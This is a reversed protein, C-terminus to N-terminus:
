NIVDGIVNIEVALAPLCQPEFIRKESISNSEM